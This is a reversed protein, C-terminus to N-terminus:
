LTPPKEGLIVDASPSIRKASVERRTVICRLKLQTLNYITTLLESWGKTIALKYVNVWVYNTVHPAEFFDRRFDQAGFM